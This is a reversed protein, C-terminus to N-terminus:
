GGFTCVVFEDMRLDIEMLHGFWVKCPVGAM